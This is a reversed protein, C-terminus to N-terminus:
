ALVPAPRRRRASLALLSTLLLFGAVGIIAGDYSGTRTFVLAAAPVCLVSFPLIILQSLGYARSFSERGFVESLAASYAPVAGAGHLGILGIVVAATVFSPHLLLLLWLLSNDFVVIVMAWVAGIRDAIWGFLNTGIIGIISQSSLLLAAQGATIGWTHAMPVIHVTLTISNVASAIFALTLGWFRPLRVLQAMSLGAADAAPADPVEAAPAAASPPRDTVFLNSVVTVVSLAALCLYTASLGHNQLVWTAIEPMVVIIVATSIFGLAKGRNSTFWRTVLTGPMVVGVAMGPGLLLAFAVLYLPFTATLALVVYGAVSLLSGLLMILRLSYRSALAGAIPATVATALSLVPIGLTAQTPGVGLRTQVAGLLVSFSGYICAITINFNIFAIAAM